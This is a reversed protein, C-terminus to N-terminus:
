KNKIKIWLVKLETQIPFKLDDLIKENGLVIGTM